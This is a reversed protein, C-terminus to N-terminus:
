IWTAHLSYRNYDAPVVGNLWHTLGVTNDAVYGSGPATDTWTNSQYDQTSEFVTSLHPLNQIYMQLSANFMPNDTHPGIAYNETDKWLDLGNFTLQKNFLKSLDDTVNELVMHSVELVTDHEFCIKQRHEITEGYAGLATQWDALECYDLLEALLQQPFLKQFVQVTGECSPLANIVTSAHATGREVLEFDLM